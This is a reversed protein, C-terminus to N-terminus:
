ASHRDILFGNVLDAVISGARENLHIHDTLFYLGNSEAIQDWNRRLCSHKLVANLIVGIRGEYSPPNHNTPLSACLQEHLPLLPIHKDAAISKLSANYTKVRQNLDSELDEGLMPIELLAIQAETEDQIRDVIREVNQRYWELSPKEPIKQGKRYRDEWQQSQTGNVDNTGVLLTVVDPRCAVIDDVRQLVNWALNGNIGANVFEYGNGGLRKQLMEVYDASAVGYTISDGACVVLTKTDPLRGRQLFAKPSKNRQRIAPIVMPVVVLAVPLLVLIAVILLLAM